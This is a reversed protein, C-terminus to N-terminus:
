ECSASWKIQTDVLVSVAIQGNPSTVQYEKSFVNLSIVVFTLLLFHKM